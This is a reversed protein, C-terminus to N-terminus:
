SALLLDGNAVDDHDVAKLALGACGHLQGGEKEDVALVDSAVCLSQGADGHGSLDDGGCLPRLDVDELVLVLGAVALTLTVTLLQRLDAHGTDLGLLGVVRLLCSCIACLFPADDVRLPRSELACRRPTLRKPPWTTPAPSIM